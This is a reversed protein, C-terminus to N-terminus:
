PEGKQQLCSAATLIANREVITGGCVHGGDVRVSAVYPFGEISVPWGGVIREAPNALVNSVLVLQFIVVFGTIAVM